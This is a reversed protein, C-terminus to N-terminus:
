NLHVLQLVLVFAGTYIALQVIRDLVLQFRHVREIQLLDARDVVQDGRHPL